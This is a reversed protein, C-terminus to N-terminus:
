AGLLAVNAPLVLVASHALVPGRGRHAVRPADAQARVPDLARVAVDETRSPRKVAAPLAVCCGHLCITRWRASKADRRGDSKAEESIKHLKESTM